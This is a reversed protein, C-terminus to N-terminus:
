GILRAAEAALQARLADAAARHRRAEDDRGLLQAVAALADDVPGTLLSGNDLGAMRGSYPSLEEACRRAQGTDNLAVAAHARLTTVALWYYSREVAPRGGWIRRAEDTRGAAILALVAADCVATSVHDHIFTLEDALPALDGRALAASIRGVVALYAGNAAGLEVLRAAAVQYGKEGEDLRGALVTLQATFIDLVTLLHGLQGTGAHAVALDVHRQATALDCRSAASLFVLWHAVAEYDAQGAL